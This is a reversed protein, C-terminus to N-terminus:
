GRVLHHLSLMQLEFLMLEEIIHLWWAFSVLLIVTTTPRLADPDSDVDLVAL